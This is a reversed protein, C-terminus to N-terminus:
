LTPTWGQETEKEWGNIINPIFDCEIENQAIQKDKIDDAEVANLFAAFRGDELALIVDGDTRSIIYECKSSDLAIDILAFLISPIM